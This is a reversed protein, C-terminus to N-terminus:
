GVCTSNHNVKLIQNSKKLANLEEARRKAEVDHMEAAERELQVIAANTEALSAELTENESKLQEAKKELETKKHERQLTLYYM